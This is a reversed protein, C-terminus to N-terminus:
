SAGGVRALALAIRLQDRWRRMNRMIPGRDLQRAQPYQKEIFEIAAAIHASVRHNKEILEAVAARSEHAAELM